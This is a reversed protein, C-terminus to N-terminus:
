EEMKQYGDMVEKYSPISEAAGKKTVCISSAYSAFDISKPIDQTELYRKLFSAIFTDGAATTDVANVKYSPFLEGKQGDYLYSGQEGLKLLIYESNSNEYLTLATEYISQESEIKIGTLFEAESQNPSLIFIKGLKNLDLGPLPPGADVVLKVNMSNCIEAISYITEKLIEFQILVFDPNIETIIKELESVDVYHNAGPITTSFYEGNNMINIVATGTKEKEVVKLHDTNINLGDLYNLYNSGYEDKGVSGILYTKIDMKNLAIAQNAAKGGYGYEYSEGLVAENLRPIREIGYIFLDINISGIVAIKKM